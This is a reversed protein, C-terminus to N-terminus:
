HVDNNFHKCAQDFTALAQTLGDTLDGTCISAFVGNKGVDGVFQQLRVAEAADGFLPSSCQRPGAIVATAWRGREGKVEDFAGPYDAMPRALDGDGGASGEDEDTLIVFALLADKRLFSVGNMTNMSDEIRLTVGLLVNELPREIDSGDTGYLARCAFQAAVDGDGRELWPRHPGPSCGEPAGKARMSGFTGREKEDDSTTVALRYDLMDGTTTEYENIVKVVKPFNAALNAQEEAMSGSNDVAFVIDM